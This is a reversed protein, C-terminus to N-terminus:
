LRRVIEGILANLKRYEELTEDLNGTNDAYGQHVAKALQNLNTGQKKLEVFFEKFNEIEIIEKELSSKRLYDSKSLKSKEIKKELRELEEESLFFKVQKDRLRGM